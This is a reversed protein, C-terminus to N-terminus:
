MFLQQIEWQSRKSLPVLRVLVVGLLFSASPTTLDFTWRHCPARSVHYFFTFLLSNSLWKAGSSFNTLSNDLLATWKDRTLKGRTLVGVGVLRRRAAAPSSRRESRRSAAGFTVAVSGGCRLPQWEREVSVEADENCSTERLSKGEYQRPTGELPFRQISIAYAWGYNVQDYTLYDICHYIDFRLFLWM